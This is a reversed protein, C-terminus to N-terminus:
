MHENYIITSYIIYLREILSYFKSLTEFHLCSKDEPATSVKGKHLEELKVLVCMSRFLTRFYELCEPAYDVREQYLIFRM